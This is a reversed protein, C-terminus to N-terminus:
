ELQEIDDSRRLEREGCNPCEFVFLERIEEIKFVGIAALPSAVDCLRCVIGPGSFGHFSM